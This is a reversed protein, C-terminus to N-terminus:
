GYNKKWWNAVDIIRAFWIGDHQKAYELFKDFHKARHPRGTMEPHTQFIFMKPTKDSEKYLVDFEDRLCEYLQSPTNRPRPFDGSAYYFPFDDVAFSYPVEVLSKGNVQLMYPLDYNLFDGDWVFGMDCLLEITNESLQVKPTRWGLIRQGTISKIADINKQIEEVEEEKKMKWVARHTYTHGAIEHGKAVIAKATEPYLEATKGVTNFTGKLNHKDLIELLRWFGQRGGYSMETLQEYNPTGDPFHWEGVESQYDFSIVFAMKAGNPWSVDKSQLKEEVRGWYKM